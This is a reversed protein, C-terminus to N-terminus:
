MFVPARRRSILQRLQQSPQKLEWAILSGSSRPGLPLSRERLVDRTARPAQPAAAIGRADALFLDRLWSLSEVGIEAGLCGICHLGIRVHIPEGIPVVIPASMLGAYGKQLTTFPVTGDQVLSQVRQLGKPQPPRALPSSAAPFPLGTANVAIYSSHPRTQPKRTLLPAHPSIASIPPPRPAKRPPRPLLIAVSGVVPVDMAGLSVGEGPFLSKLFALGSGFKGKQDYGRGKTDCINARAAGKLLM